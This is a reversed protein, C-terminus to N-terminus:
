VPSGRKSNNIIILTLIIICVILIWLDVLGGWVVFGTFITLWLFFTETDRVTLFTMIMALGFMIALGMMFNVDGIAM